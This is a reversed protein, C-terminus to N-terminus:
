SCRCRRQRTALMVLGFGLLLGTGPEPVFDTTASMGLGPSAIGQPENVRLRLTMAAGTGSVLVAEPIVFGAFFYDNVGDTGFAIEFESPSVPSLDFEATEYGAPVPDRETFMLLVDGRGQWSVAASITLKLIRDIDDVGVNEEWSIWSKELLLPDDDAGSDIPIWVPDAAIIQTPEYPPVSSNDFGFGGPGNYYPIAQAHGAGLLGLALLACLVLKVGPAFNWRSIRTKM